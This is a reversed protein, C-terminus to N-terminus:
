PAELNKGAVAFVQADLLVGVLNGRRFVFHDFRTLEIDFGERDLCL